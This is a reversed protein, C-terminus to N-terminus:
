AKSTATTRRRCLPLVPPQKGKGVYTSEPFESFLSDTTILGITRDSVLKEAELIVAGGMSYGILIINRLDLKEVVSKVDQGSLEMIYTERNKDSKGHGALDLLVLRYKSSLLLQYKWAQMGTVTGWGSVFVLAIAGEGLVEYFIEIGDISTVTPM